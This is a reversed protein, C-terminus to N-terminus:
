RAVVRYIVEPEAIVRCTACMRNHAGQSLFRKKCTLCARERRERKASVMARRATARESLYPKAVHRATEYGATAKSTAVILYARDGRASGRVCIKDDRWLTNILERARAPYTRLAAALQHLDPAQRGEDAYSALLTLMQAPDPPANLTEPPYGLDFGATKLDEAVLWYCRRYSCSMDVRAVLAGTAILTNIESQILSSSVGLAHAMTAFSPVADGTRACRALQEMILPACRGLKQKAKVGM